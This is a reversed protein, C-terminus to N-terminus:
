VEKGAPNGALGKAKRPQKKVGQLGKFKEVLFLGIAEEVIAFGNSDFEVDIREGENLGPISFARTAKNTAKIRM